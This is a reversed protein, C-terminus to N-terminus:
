FRNSWNWYAGAATAATLLGFTMRKRGETTLADGTADRMAVHADWAQKATFVSAAALGLTVIDRNLIPNSRRAPNALFRRAPLFRRPALTTFM